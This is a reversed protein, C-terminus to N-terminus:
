RLSELDIKKVFFEEALIDIEKKLEDIMIAEPVKRIIKGHRFLLGQGNSGAIGIDAERAEGPGNVACGLVAVKLPVEIKAIYNVEVNVIRILDIEIRGCTPCSILMAANTSLGFSKLVVWAVKIEEVPDARLSVRLTNGIGLSLIAGLGAASKIGGAFQTGSETIGLHLPYNFARSAKDYAEIALNVDSAKLYVIIDYFDLDELIKI